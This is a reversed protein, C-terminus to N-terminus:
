TSFPLKDRRPRGVSRASRSTASLAARARSRAAACAILFYAELAQRAGIAHQAAGARRDQPQAVPGVQEVLHAADGDILAAIARTVILRISASARASSAAAQAPM